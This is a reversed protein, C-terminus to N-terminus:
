LGGTERFKPKKLSDRLFNNLEGPNSIITRSVQQNVDEVRNSSQKVPLDKDSRNRLLGRGTVRLYGAYEAKM